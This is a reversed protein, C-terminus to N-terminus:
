GLGFGGGGLCVLCGGFWVVRRVWGGGCWVLGGKLCSWDRWVLGFWGELGVVVVGFWVVVLWLVLTPGSAASIMCPMAMARLHPAVFFCNSEVTPIWGEAASSNTVIRVRVRRTSPFPCIFIQPTPTPKPNPQDSRIHNIRTSKPSQHHQYASSPQMAKNQMSHLLPKCTCADACPILGSRHSLGNITTLFGATM